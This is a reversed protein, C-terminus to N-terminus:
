RDTLGENAQPGGHCVENGSEDGGEVHGDPIRDSERGQAPDTQQTLPPAQREDDNVEQDLTGLLVISGTYYKRLADRSGAAFVVTLTLLLAEVWGLGASAAHPSCRWMAYAATLAVLSNGYFQYYRYHQEVLYDFADLRETLRSEDLTPRVLGTFHHATDLVAWRIVSATMGSGISALGVYLVSAVTPGNTGSDGAGVLWVHVSDSLSGVGLLVVFGPLVYAILLGFNRTNFIDM